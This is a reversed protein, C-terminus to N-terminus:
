STCGLGLFYPLFLAFLSAFCLAFLAFNGNKKKKKKKKNHRIWKWICCIFTLEIQRAHPAQYSPVMELLLSFKRNGITELDLLGYWCPKFNATARWRTKPSTALISSAFCPRIEVMLEFNTLFNVTGGIGGLFTPWTSIMTSILLFADVKFASPLPTKYGVTLYKINTCWRAWTKFLKAVDSLRFPHSHKLSFNELSGINIDNRKVGGELSSIVCSM